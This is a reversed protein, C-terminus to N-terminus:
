KHGFELWVSSFRVNKVGMYGSKWTVSSWVTEIMKYVEKSCNSVLSTQFKLNLEVSSEQHTKLESSKVSARSWASQMWLMFAPLMRTQKWNYWYDFEVRLPKKEFFLRHIEKHKWSQRWRMLMFIFLFQFCIMFFFDVNTKLKETKSIVGVSYNFDLVLSM